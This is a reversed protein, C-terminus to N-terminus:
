IVTLTGKQGLARHNMVSCYFEFTDGVKATAPITVEIIAEENSNLLGSDVDLEDIVFNHHGDQSTLKIKLTQGPRGQLEDPLFYYSGMNIAFDAVELSDEDVPTPNIPTDPTDNFNESDPDGALSTGSAADSTTETEEDKTDERSLTYGLFGLVGTIAIVLVVILLSSKSM